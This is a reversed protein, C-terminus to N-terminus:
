LGQRSPPPLDTWLQTFLRHVHKAAHEVRLETKDVPCQPHRALRGRYSARLTRTEIEPKGGERLGEGCPGAEEATPLPAGWDHRAAPQPPIGLSTSEFM